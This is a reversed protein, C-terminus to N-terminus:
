PMEAWGGTQMDPMSITFPAFPRDSVGLPRWLRQGFQMREIPTGGGRSSYARRSHGPVHRM